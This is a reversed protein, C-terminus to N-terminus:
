SAFSQLGLPSTRVAILQAQAEGVAAACWVVSELGALGGGFCTAGVTSHFPLPMPSVPSIFRADSGLDLLRPLGFGGHLPSRRAESVSM